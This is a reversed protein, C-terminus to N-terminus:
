SPPLASVPTRACWARRRGGPAAATPAPRVRPPAARRDSAPAASPLRDFAEPAAPVLHEDRGVDRRAAEVDVADRVDHVVFHRGRGLGVHVAHAARASAQRGTGRERQERGPLLARAARVPSIPQRGVETAIPDATRSGPPPAAPSRPPAPAFLAPPATVGRLRGRGHHLEPRAAPTTRWLVPRLAARVAVHHRNGAGRPELGLGPARVALVELQPARGALALRPFLM